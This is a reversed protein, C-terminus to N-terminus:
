AVHMLTVVSKALNYLIVGLVSVLLLFTSIGIIFFSTAM